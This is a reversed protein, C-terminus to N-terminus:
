LAPKNTKTTEIQGKLADAETKRIRSELADLSEFIRQYDMMSFHLNMVAGQPDLAMSIRMTAAGCIASSTLHDHRPRRMVEIVSRSELFTGACHRVAEPHATARLSGDTEYSWLLVQSGGHQGAFSPKGFKDIYDQARLKPQPRFGDQFFQERTLGILKENKFDPSYFAKMGDRVQQTTLGPNTIEYSQVALYDSDPLVKRAQGYNINATGSEILKASAGLKAAVQPPTLGFSVGLASPPEAARAGGAAALLLAACAAGLRTRPLRGAGSMHASATSRGRANSAQMPQVVLPTM